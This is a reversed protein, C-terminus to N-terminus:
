TVLKGKQKQGARKKVQSLLFSDLPSALYFTGLDLCFIKEVVSETSMDVYKM